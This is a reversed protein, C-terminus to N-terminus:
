KKEKQKDEYLKQLAGKGQSAAIADMLKAPLGEWNKGLDVQSAIMFALLNASSDGGFGKEVRDLGRLAENIRNVTEQARMIQGQNPTKRGVDIGPNPYEVMGYQPVKARQGVPSELAGKDSLLEIHPVGGNKGDNYKFYLDDRGTFTNLNLLDKYFLQSGAERQIWTRYMNGIEPDTSALKTVVNVVEQSTMQNWVTQKGPERKNTIPNYRDNNFTNLVGQGEPSFFFKLANVKAAEPAKPDTIDDMMVKMGSALYRSRMRSNIQGSEELSLAEGAMDRYTPMKGKADPKGIKADLVRNEFLKEMTKDVDKQLLKTNVISTWNNGMDENLIRFKRMTEGVPGSYVEDKTTALMSAARNAHSFALGANNNLLAKEINDYTTGVLNTIIANTGQATIDSNYSYTKGQDDKSMEAARAGFRATLEARQAMFKQALERLQEAKYKSPNDNADQVFGLLTKKEQTGTITVFTNMASSIGAGVENTFDGTRNLVLDERRGQNSKRTRDQEEIIARKRNEEYYWNKYAPLAAEGNQLLFEDMKRAGMLGDGQAKRSVDLWKDYETKKTTQLQAIQRSLDRVLENAPNMGTIAAVRQDIYDVYGPYKSRLDTVANKLRMDYYTDDGAVKGSGTVLFNQLNEVRRLGTNIAAPIAKEQGPDLLNLPAGSASTGASTAPGASQPVQGGTLAARGALLDNTYDERIPEVTGRVDRNIIDKMTTDAIVAAGELGEGLTALAIGRSKDTGGGSTPSTVKTWDPMNDKGPAISPNFVAM